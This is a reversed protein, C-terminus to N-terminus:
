IGAVFHSGCHQCKLLLTGSTTRRLAGDPYHKITVSGVTPNSNGCNCEISPDDADIGELFKRMEDIDDKINDM